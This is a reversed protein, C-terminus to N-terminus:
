CALKHLVFVTFYMAVLSSKNWNYVPNYELLAFKTLCQFNIYTVINLFNLLFEIM